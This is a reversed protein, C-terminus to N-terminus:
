SILDGKNSVFGKSMDVVRERDEGSIILYKYNSKFFFCSYIAYVIYIKFYRKPPNM